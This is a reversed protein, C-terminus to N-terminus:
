EYFSYSNGVFLGTAPNTVGLETVFPKVSTELAYASTAATALVAFTLLAKQMTPVGNCGPFASAHSPNHRSDGSTVM